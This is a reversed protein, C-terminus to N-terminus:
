VKLERKGVHFRRSTHTYRAEIMLWVVFSSPQISSQSGIGLVTYHLAGCAIAANAFPANIAKGEPSWALGLATPSVFLLM